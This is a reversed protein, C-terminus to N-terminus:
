NSEVLSHAKYIYIYIYIYIYKKIYIYIYININIYIYIYINIKWRKIKDFLTLQLKDIIQQKYLQSYIYWRSKM